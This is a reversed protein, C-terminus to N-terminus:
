SVLGEFVRTAQVVMIIIPILGIAATLGALVKLWYSRKNWSIENHTLLPPVAALLPLGTYHKADEINQIKFLRPVEFLAALFLGLGLGLAAGFATLLERKPAVPSKPLNAPDIVSITEGQANSERNVQLSADNRKKDLDDFNSKASQYQSEVSELMVKVNPVANLKAEVLAIQASNQQLQQQKLAIQTEINSIEGVLKQKEIEFGRKQIEAKRDSSEKANEVSTKASLELEKLASNVTRIQEKTDVVIPMKDRYEARLSKLKAELEARKQLLQAYAPSQRVDTGKNLADEIDKQGLDEVLRIKSNLSGISDNIRGKESNFAQIDRGINAENQRLGNLQAVLGQAAEPLADQNKMMIELRQKALDDLTKKKEALQEDIFEQTDKARETSESVQASVYKSALEAVVGRVSDPTRDRYSIQFSAIKDYDTRVLEVKINRRMRDVILELPMGANREIKFLDYKAIMPELSTRSLVRTNINEIRQSVDSDSLSQVVKDSITPAKVTLVTKSEYVSPLKNVVYGIAGTMTIIPLLILWKRRKVMQIIEGASRQRFDVSM